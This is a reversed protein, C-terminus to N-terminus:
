GVEYANQINKKQQEVKQKGLDKFFTKLDSYKDKECIRTIEEVRIRNNITLQNNLHTLEIDTAIKHNKHKGFLGCISCVEEQKVLRVILM